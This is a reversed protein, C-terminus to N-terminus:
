DLELRSNYIFLHFSPLFSMHFAPRSLPYKLSKAKCNLLKYVCLIEFGAVCNIHLLPGLLWKYGDM